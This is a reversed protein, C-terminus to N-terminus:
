TPDRLVLCGRLQREKSVLVGLGLRDDRNPRQREFDEFELKRELDAKGSDMPESFVRGAISERFEIEM